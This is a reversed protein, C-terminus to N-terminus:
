LSCSAAAGAPPPSGCDTLPNSKPLILVIDNENFCANALEPAAESSNHPRPPGECDCVAAGAPLPVVASGPMSTTAGRRACGGRRGLVRTVVPTRRSVGASGGGLSACTTAPLFAVNSGARWLM